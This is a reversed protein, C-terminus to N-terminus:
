TQCCHVSSSIQVLSHPLWFLRASLLLSHWFKPSKM